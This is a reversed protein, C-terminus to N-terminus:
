VELCGLYPNFNAVPTPTVVVPNITSDAAALPPTRVARVSSYAVRLIEDTRTPAVSWVKLSNAVSPVVPALVTLLGVPFVVLIKTMTAKMLNQRKGVSISIEESALKM